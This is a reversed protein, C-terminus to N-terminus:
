RSSAWVGRQLTQPRDWGTAHHTEVECLVDPQIASADAAVPEPVM